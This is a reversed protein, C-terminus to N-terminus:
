TMLANYARLMDVDILEGVVEVCIIQVFCSCTKDPCLIDLTLFEPSGRDALSAEETALQNDLRHM